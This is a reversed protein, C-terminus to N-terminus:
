RVSSCGLLASWTKGAKVNFLPKRCPSVLLLIIVTFDFSKRTNERDQLMYAARPALSFNERDRTVLTLTFSHPM